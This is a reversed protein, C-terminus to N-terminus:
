RGSEGSSAFGHSASMESASFHKSAHFVFASVISSKYALSELRPFVVASLSNLIKQAFM